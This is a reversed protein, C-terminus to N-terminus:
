QNWSRYKLVLFTFVGLMICTIVQQILLPTDNIQFAWWLFSGNAWILIATTVLSFDDTSKTELIRGIQPIWSFLGLFAVLTMYTEGNMNEM